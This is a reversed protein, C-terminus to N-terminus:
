SGKWVYRTKDNEASDGAQDDKLLFFPDLFLNQLFKCIISQKCGAICDTDGPNSAPYGAIPDRMTLHERGTPINNICGSGSFQVSVSTSFSISM